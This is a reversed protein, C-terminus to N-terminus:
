ELPSLLTICYRVKAVSGCMLSEDPIRSELYSSVRSKLIACEESTLPNDPNGGQLIAIEEKLQRVEESLRDIIANPDTEENVTVQNQILGVRQAFRCTCISENMYRGEPSITAIMSTSCNGGFSDRLVTTLASNRYPVHDREGVSKENLAVIVQELFHLSLNINRGESFVLSDTPSKSLRESGALDVLCLRSRRVKHSGVERIEIDVMFLCHSRTSCNNM